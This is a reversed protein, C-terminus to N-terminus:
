EVSKLSEVMEIDRLSKRTLFMVILSFVITVAFGYVFSLPKITTGFRIMEMDIVNMIFKHEVVGLPLGFVAGIVTLLFIEKFIYSYIEGTRFGLVKLTAIERIRESINVQTLNILVVFALSGATVIIVLIIYDLARIMITFQSTISSFDVVSEFGEVGKLEAAINNSVTNKVALKNPHIPDDFVSAYYDESM